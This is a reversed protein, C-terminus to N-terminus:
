GGEVWRSPSMSGRVSCRYVRLLIMYCISHPGRARYAGKEPTITNINGRPRGPSSLTNRKVPPHYDTIQM